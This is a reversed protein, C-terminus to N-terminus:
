TSPPLPTLHPTTQYYLISTFPPTPYMTRIQQDDKNMNTMMFESIM